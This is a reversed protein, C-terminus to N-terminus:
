EVSQNLISSLPLIVDIKTGKGIKSNIDIYGGHMKAFAISLPLGLGTGQNIKTQENEVQEFPLIIKDIDAESIGIGNDIVSIILNEADNITRVIIHGGIDTFKVANSILNIIIQRIVREDAYIHNIACLEKELTIQKADASIKLIRMAQNITDILSMNEPSIKFKGAEIKAMDLVDDIIKLLHQGSALIDNAYEIYVKNEIPGNLENAIFESFGNIANLPTRLEHSMNALFKDKAVVALAVKVKEDEYKSKEAEYQTEINNIEIKLNQLEDLTEVLQNKYLAADEENGKHPNINICMFITNNSLSRKKVLRVWNNQSIEREESYLNNGDDHDLINLEAIKSFQKFNTGTTLVEGIEIFDRAFQNNWYIINFDKDWLSFSGPMAEIIELFLNESFKLKKSKQIEESVDLSIGSIIQNQMKNKNKAIFRIYSTNKSIESNQLGRLGESVTEKKPTNIAVTIDLFGSNLCNDLSSRFKRADSENFKEIIQNINHSGAKEFGFIYALRESLYFTNEKMDWDWIDCNACELIIDKKNEIDKIAEEFLDEKKQNFKHINNAALLVLFPGLLLFGYLLVNRFVLANIDNAPILAYITFDSNTPKQIVLYDENDNLSIKSPKKSESKIPPNAAIINNINNDILNLEKSAGAINGSRDTIISYIRDKSPPVQPPKLIAAFSSGDPNRISVAPAYTKKDTLITGAWGGTSAKQSASSLAALENGSATTDTYAAGDPAFSASAVVNPLLLFQSRSLANINSIENKYKLFILDTQSAIYEAAANLKDYKAQIKEGTDSRGKMAIVIAFIACIYIVIHIPKIGKKRVFHRLNIDIM